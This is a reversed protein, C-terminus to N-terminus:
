PLTLLKQKGPSCTIAGASLLRAVAASVATYGGHRRLSNCLDDKRTAGSQVRALILDELNAQAIMMAPIEPTWGDSLFRLFNISTRIVAHAARVHEVQITRHHTSWAALVQLKRNYRHLRTFAIETESLTKKKHLPQIVERGFADDLAWAEPTYLDALDRGEGFTWGRPMSESAWTTIADYHIRETPAGNYLFGSFGGPLILHRNIYGSAYHAETVMKKYSLETTTAIMTLTPRPVTIRGARGKGSVRNVGVEPLEDAVECFRELLSSGHFQMSRLVVTWERLALVTPESTLFVGDDGREGGLCEILAQGSEVSKEVRYGYPLLAQCLDVVLAKGHSSPAVLLLYGTGYLDGHYNVHVSRGGRAMLAATVAAWVRWDRVGVLNAVAGWPGIWVEDPCPWENVEERADDVFHGNAYGETM